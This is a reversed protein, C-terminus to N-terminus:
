PTVFLVADSARLQERFREWAPPPGAAELDEDYHPLDGIEVIELGLNDPALAALALAAKRNISEKRLSGVIVAVKYPTTM